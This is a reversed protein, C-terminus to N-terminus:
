ITMVSNESKLFFINEVFIYVYKAFMFKLSKQKKRKNKTKKTIFEWRVFDHM